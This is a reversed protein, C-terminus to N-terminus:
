KAKSVAACLHALRSSLKGPPAIELIGAAVAAEKHDVAHRAVVAACDTLGILWTALQLHGRRCAEIACLDAPPQDPACGFPRHNFIHILMKQDNQRTAEISLAIKITNGGDLVAAVGDFDRAAVAQLGKETAARLLGWHEPPPLYEM